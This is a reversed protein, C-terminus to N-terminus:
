DVKYVKNYGYRRLAREMKLRHLRNNIYAEKFTKLAANWLDLNESFMLRANPEYVIRTVRNYIRYTYGKIVIVYRKDAERRLKKLLKVKM